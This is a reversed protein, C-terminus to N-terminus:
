EADVITIGFFLKLPIPPSGSKIAPLPCCDFSMNIEGGSGECDSHILAAIYLYLDTAESYVNECGISFHLLLKEGKMLERFDAVTFLPKM